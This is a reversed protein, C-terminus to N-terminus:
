NMFSDIETSSTGVLSGCNVATGFFLAKFFGRIALAIDQGGFL